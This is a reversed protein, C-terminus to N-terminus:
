ILGMQLKAADSIMEPEWPPEWTIEVEVDKVEPIMRIISRVMELILDASPCNPATLTMLVKALGTEAEFELKYILGLDYINVPLEPDYVQRVALEMRDEVTVTDDKLRTSIPVITSASKERKRRKRLIRRM